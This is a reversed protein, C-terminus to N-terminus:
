TKKEANEYDKGRESIRKLCEHYGKMLAIIGSMDIDTSAGEFELRDGNFTMVVKTVIRATSGQAEVNVASPIYEVLRITKIQAYHNKLVKRLAKDFANVPGNGEASVVYEKANVLIKIMVRCYRKKSLFDIQSVVDILAVKFFRNKM